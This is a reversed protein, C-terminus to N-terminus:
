DANGEMNITTCIEDFERKFDELKQETSLNSCNDLVEMVEDLIKDMREKREKTIIM